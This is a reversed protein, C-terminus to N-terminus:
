NDGQWQRLDQEAVVFVGDGGNEFDLWTIPLDSYAEDLAVWSNGVEVILLGGPTLHE